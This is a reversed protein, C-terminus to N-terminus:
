ELGPRQRLVAHFDLGGFHIVVFYAEAQNRTRQARAKLRGIALHGSGRARVEEELTEVDFSYVRKPAGEGPPRYILSIAHHGLVRDLDVVSPRVLQEWVGRGNRFKALNSPAEDLVASFAPEFDRQFEQALHIARAAYQLCQVTEIGSIEDHFWGCSTFMLMASSQIELLRLADVVQNQDLDPHGYRALFTDLAKDCDRNLIVQIY